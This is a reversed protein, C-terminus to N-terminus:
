LTHQIYNGYCAQFILRYKLLENFSGNLFDSYVEHSTTVRIWHM